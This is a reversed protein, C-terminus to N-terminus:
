SRPYIKIIDGNVSFRYGNALTIDEIKKMEPYDYKGIFLRADDILITHDKIPHDFIFQLEKEIPTDLTGRATEGGSYHADLWFLIPQNIKSIITPILVASDGHFLKINKYGSFKEQAKKYLEEGLEISYINTFYNKVADVMKGQYTGTEVFNDYGNKNALVFRVKNKHISAIKRDLLWQKIPKHLGIFQLINKLLHRIM